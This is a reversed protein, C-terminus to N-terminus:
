VLANVALVEGATAWINVMNDVAGALLKGTSNWVVINLREGDLDARDENDEGRCIVRFSSPRDWCSTM